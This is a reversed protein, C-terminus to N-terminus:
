AETHSKRAGLFKFAGHGSAQPPHKLANDAMDKGSALYCLVTQNRSIWKYMRTLFAKIPKIRDHNQLGEALTRTKSQWNCRFDFRARRATGTSNFILGASLELCIELCWGQPKPVLINQKALICFKSSSMIM